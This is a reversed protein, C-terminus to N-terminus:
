SKHCILFSLLEKFIPIIAIRHTLGAEGDPASCFFPVARPRGEGSRERDARRRQRSRRTTCPRM